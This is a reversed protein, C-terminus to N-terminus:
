GLQDRCFALARRVAELAQAPEEVHLASPDCEVSVTRAYGDAVLKRLLEGLRLRGDGPLRHERGDYDSLHVHAVRERLRTYFELADRGWTGVHTTDLTVHRFHALEACSNYRYRNIRRGLLRAAPMNEVAVDVGSTSELDALGELLFRAYPDARLSPVPVGAAWTRAGYWQLLLTRLRHPLHTVVLPTGLEQALAVTQRLRGLPDPPWGPVGAVFPNHLALIPMGAQCALRRLYVPQRTDWRHDVLVEVGDFGAEAAMELARVLGYTFLSGTSLAVTLRGRLSGVQERHQWAERGRRVWEREPEFTLVGIADDWTTWQPEFQEEGAQQASQGATDLTMLFYRESRVVRRGKYGFRVIQEGLDAVIAASGYGSEEQTERLAAEPASEGPDIHGKPLRVEGRGPRRLVLVLGARVVVGGAADYRREAVRPETM